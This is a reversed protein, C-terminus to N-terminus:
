TQQPLGKWANGQPYLLDYHGSRYLLFMAPAKPDLESVQILAEARIPEILHVQVNNLDPL